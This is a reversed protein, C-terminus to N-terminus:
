VVHKSCRGLNLDDAFRSTCANCYVQLKVPSPKHLLIQQHMECTLIISYLQTRHYVFKSDIQCEFLPMAHYRPKLPALYAETDVKEWRVHKSKNRQLLFGFCCEGESPEGKGPEDTWDYNIVGIAMQAGRRDVGYKRYYSSWTTSPLKICVHNSWTDRWASEPCRRPFDGKDEPSRLWLCISSGRVPSLSTRESPAGPKTAADWLLYPLLTDRSRRKCTPRGM